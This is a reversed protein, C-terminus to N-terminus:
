PPQRRLTRSDQDQDSRGDGGLGSQVRQRTCGRLLMVDQHGKANRAPLALARQHEGNLTM